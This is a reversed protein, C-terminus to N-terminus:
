LRAVAHLLTLLRHYLMALFQIVQVLGFVFLSLFGLPNQGLVHLAERGSLVMMTTIWLVNAVLVIILTYNRLVTLKAKLNVDSTFMGKTPDLKEKCLQKWFEKEEKENQPPKEKLDRTGCKQLIQKMRYKEKQLEDPEKMTDIAIKLRKIHGQKTIGLDRMLVDLDTRLLLALDEKERVGYATFNQIYEQLNLKELWENVDGPVATELEFVPLNSQIETLLKARQYDSDIGINRLDEDTMGAIFTTDGYGNTKFRKAYSLFVEDTMGAILSTDEYGNEAFNKQFTIFVQEVDESFGKLWEEVTTESKMSVVTKKPCRNTWKTNVEATSTTPVKTTNPDNMTVWTRDTLNCVSYITLLIYGTPLSLFYVLGYVLCGIETIHVLGTIVYMGVLALFYLTSISPIYSRGASLNEKWTTIEVFIDEVLSVLVLSMLVAFCLALVKAM